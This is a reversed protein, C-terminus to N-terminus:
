FKYSVGLMLDNSSAKTSTSITDSENGATETRSGTVKGGDVYRYSADISINSTIAYKVGAGVGWAFKNADASIGDGDEETINSKLHSLGIGATLYPTFDSSNHFDYYGNVMYTDMRVKNKLKLSYSDDGFTQSSNADGRFKAAFEMRVPVQYQDYFDYGVAVGGGFVSKNKNKFNLTTVDSDGQYTYTDTISKDKVNIISTGVEGSVYVGSSASASTAYVALLAISSAILTKKM